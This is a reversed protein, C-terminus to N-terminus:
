MDEDTKRISFTKDFLGVAVAPLIGGAVLREVTKRYFAIQPAPLFFIAPPTVGRQAARLFFHFRQVSLIEDDPEMRGNTLDDEVMRSQLEVARVIGQPPLTEIM